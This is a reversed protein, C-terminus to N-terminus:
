VLKLEGRPPSRIGAGEISTIVLGFVLAELDGVYINLERALSARTMGDARLAGFM